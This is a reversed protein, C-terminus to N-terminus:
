IYDVFSNENKRFMWISIVLMIIDFIVLSIFSQFNFASFDGLLSWRLGDISGAVPNITYLLYYWNGHAAQSLNTQVLESTYAIPSVFYGFQIMFPIIQGVDRYKVNLVAAILGFGFAGMYALFMFVPAFVIKWDPIYQYWFCLIVFLGFAILADLLGIMLSSLPVILRPFYVKSVLNTNGVISNSVLGLSQSFFLWVIVGPMVVLMYAISTDEDLKAIKGFAFVMVLATLLPRIISWAVGLVTQKYRVLIDRKALIWFLERSQWVERWYHLASKGNSILVEKSSSDM